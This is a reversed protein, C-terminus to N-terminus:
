GRVVQSPDVIFDKMIVPLGSGAAARAIWQRSGKFFEPETVISIAAAGGRKYEGAITEVDPDDVISGASPSASKIEAIVNVHGSRTLAASFRFRERRAASTAAQWDFAESALRERTRSVIRELVDNM